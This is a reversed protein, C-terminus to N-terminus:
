QARAFRLAMVTTEEDRRRTAFGQRLQAEPKM